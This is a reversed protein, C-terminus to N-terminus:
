TDERRARPVYGLLLMILGREGNTLDPGDDTVYGYLVLTRRWGAVFARDTLVSAGLAHPGPVIEGPAIARWFSQRTGPDPADFPLSESEYWGGQGDCAPCDVWRDSSDPATRAQARRPTDHASM